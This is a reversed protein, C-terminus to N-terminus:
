SRGLYKVMTVSTGNELSSETHIEDVLIEMLLAGLNGNDNAPDFSSMTAETKSESNEALPLSDMVGIVMRDSRLDLTIGIQSDAKGAEEARSIASTCAEGVALRLDEVEDYSFSTRSAVGLIVLRAVGIFEAQCPIKLEVKASEVVMGETENIVSQEWAEPM